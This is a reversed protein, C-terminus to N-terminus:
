RAPTSYTSPSSRADSNSRMPRKGGTLGEFGRAFEAGSQGGGVAAADDVAVQLRLVDHHVLAAVLDDHIEPQGGDGRRLRIGAAFRVWFGLRVV